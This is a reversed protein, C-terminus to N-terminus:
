RTIMLMFYGFCLVWYIFYLYKIHVNICSSTSITKQFIRFHELLTNKITSQIRKLVQKQPLSFAEKGLTHLVVHHQGELILQKNDEVVFAQKLVFFVVDFLKIFPSAVGTFSGIGPFPVKWNFELYTKDKSIFFSISVEEYRFVTVTGRVWKPVSSARPMKGPLHPYAGGVIIPRVESNTEQCFELCQNESIFSRFLPNGFRTSGCGM